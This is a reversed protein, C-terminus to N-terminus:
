SGKNLIKKMYLYASVLPKINKLSNKVTYKVKEFQKTRKQRKQSILYYQKLDYKRLWELLEILEISFHKSKYFKIDKLNSQIDTWMLLTNDDFIFIKEEFSERIRKKVEHVETYFGYKQINSEGSCLLGAITRLCKECKCCNEGKSTSMYCVRLKPKADKQHTINVINEVKDQRSMPFADHIVKTDCWAINNDINPCSGWSIHISHTSALYVFNCSKYIYPSVLGSLGMGHQVYAWWNPISEHIKDLKEHNLFAVFNSKISLTEFSYQQAFEQVQQKVTNWGITDSLPIDAGQITVLLQKEELHSLSTNVSDVGGSFLVCSMSADKDISNNCDISELIEISGLWNVSPYLECFVKNLIDLSKVIKSDAKQITVHLGSAWIVPALNMLVPIILIHEPVQKLDINDSQIWFDSLVLKEKFLMDNIIFKVKGNNEFIIDIILKDHVLINKKM